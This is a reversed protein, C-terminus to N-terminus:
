FIKLVKIATLLIRALTLFMIETGLSRSRSRSVSRSPSREKGVPSNSRSKNGDSEQVEGEEPKERMEDDSVKVDIEFNVLHKREFNRM